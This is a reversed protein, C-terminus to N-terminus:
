YYALLVFWYQLAGYYRLIQLVCNMRCGWLVSSRVNWQGGIFLVQWAILLSIYPVSLKLSTYMFLSWACAVNIRHRVFTDYVRQVNSDSGVHLRQTVSMMVYLCVVDGIGFPIRYYTVFLIFRGPCCSHFRCNPPPPDKIIINGNRNIAM